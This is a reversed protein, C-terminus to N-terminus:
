DCFSVPQLLSLLVSACFCLLVSPFFSLLVSACFCLLACASAFAPLTPLCLLASRQHCNVFDSVIDPLTMRVMERGGGVPLWGPLWASSAVSPWTTRAGPLFRKRSYSFVPRESVRVPPSRKIRGQWAFVRCGQRERVSRVGRREHRWVHQREGLRMCVFADSYTCTVIHVRRQM